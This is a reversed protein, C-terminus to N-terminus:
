YFLKLWAIIHLYLGFVWVVYVVVGSVNVVWRVLWGSLICFLVVWGSQPHYWALPDEAMELGCNEMLYFARKSRGIWTSDIGPVQLRYGTFITSCVYTYMYDDFWCVISSLRLMAPYECTLLAVIDRGGIVDCNVADFMNMLVLCSYLVDDFLCINFNIWM